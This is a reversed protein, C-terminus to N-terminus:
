FLLFQVFYVQFDCVQISTYAITRGTVETLKFKKAKTKHPGTSPNM